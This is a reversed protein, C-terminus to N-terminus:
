LLCRAIKSSYLCESCSPDNRYCDINKESYWCGRVYPCDACWPFNEMNQRLREFEDLAEFVDDLEQNLNAPLYSKIYKQHNNVFENHSYAFSMCPSVSGDVRVFMGNKYPCERNKADGFFEPKILEVGYSKTIDAIEEFIKEARYAIDIKDQLNMIALLNLSYGEGYAKNLLNRYNKVDGKSLGVIADILFEENLGKAMEVNRKSGEFYLAKRYIVENPAVVNTALFDMGNSASIEALKHINHLNDRTVVVQMIGKGDLTRIKDVIKNFKLGKRIKGDFDVSIGIKDVLDVIEKFSGDVMGNTSITIRGDIKSVIEKLKPHLFPEGYGYLIYEKFDLGEILEPQIFSGKLNKRLCYECDLNCESTIEVQVKRMKLKLEGM